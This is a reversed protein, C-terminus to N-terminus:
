SRYHELTVKITSSFELRTSGNSKWYVFIELFFLLLSLCLGLILLAFGGQVHTLRLKIPGDPAQASRMGVQAALQVRAVLWERAVTGEWARIIGAEFLRDIIDNLRELHPWCKRTALVVTGWYIDERMPRLWNSVAEEDIYDGIAFYGGPLKEVAFALDRTTVRSRLMDPTLVRYRDILDLYVPDTLGRLSNLYAIDTQAWELGSDHLDTVTDIPPEYRPITLVSSLGGGYSSTVLLYTILLWSLVHRTPGVVRTHRREVDPTQLVLLGVSRFFCDEVTSYRGGSPDDDSGLVWDSLKKVAYLAATAVVVSFGVAAWMAPSFPLVPVQWGALMLPRPALCVVSSRVYQRSYEMFEPYWRYLASFAVDVEDAAVAGLMGNGSGNCWVTGWKYTTDEVVSWTVNIKKIFEIIIRAEIGDFVNDGSNFIVYPPYDVTSIVIRRGGLDALRHAYLDASPPQLGRGRYWQAVLLEDRWTDEGTLKLTVLDFSNDGSPRAVVIEPVLDINRLDFIATINIHPSQATPLVLLRRNVRRMAFKSAKLIADVGAAADRCRVLFGQCDADLASVLLDEASVDGSVLSILVTTPFWQTFYAVAEPVDSLAAVCKYSGFEKSLIRSGLERILSDISSVDNNQLVLRGDCMSNVLMTVILLSRM